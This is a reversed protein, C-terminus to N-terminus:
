VLILHKDVEAEVTYIKTKVKEETNNKVKPLDNKVYSNKKGSFFSYFRTLDTSTVMNTGIYQLIFM